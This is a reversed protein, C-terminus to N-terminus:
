EMNINSIKTGVLYHQELALHDLPLKHELLIIVTSGMSFYGLEEGKAFSLNASKYSKRFLKEKHTRNITGYFVTNISGVITAGVFIVVMKGLQTTFSCILRENHAYVNDINNTVLHSVSDLKGPVYIIEDLTGTFPMHVRHYDKPSLYMNVYCGHLFQKTLDQDTLLAQLTFTKHKAQLLEGDHIDGFSAVTSDCPAVICANQDIERAGDALKRAFFENFTKYDTANPLLAEQLSIKYIKCFMYIMSRVLYKNELQTIRGCMKTLPKKPILKYIYLRIKQM